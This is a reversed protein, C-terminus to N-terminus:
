KCDKDNKVKAMANRYERILSTVSKGHNCDARQLLALDKEYAVVLSGNAACYEERDASNEKKDLRVAAKRMRNLAAHAENTIRNSEAICHDAVAGTPSVFVVLSVAAGAVFLKQISSMAKEM